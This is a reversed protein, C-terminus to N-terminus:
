VTFRLNMALVANAAKTMQNDLLLQYGGYAGGSTVNRFLISRFNTDTAPTGQNWQYGIDRFRSNTTYTNWIGDVQNTTGWTPNVGATDFATKTSLLAVTIGGTNFLDAYLKDLTAVGDATVTGGAIAAQTGICKLVGSINVGNQAAITITKGASNALTQKTVAITLILKEGSSLSISGPFVVRNVLGSSGATTLGNIASSSTGGVLRIGAENYSVSGTEAPFEEKITYVINGTTSNWTVSNGSVFPTSDFRIPTALATDTQQAPTTGSGVAISSATGYFLSLWTYKDDASFDEWSTGQRSGNGGLQGDAWRNIFVNDIWKEGFPYRITGDTRRVEVFWKGKPRLDIEVGGEYIPKTIKNFTLINM